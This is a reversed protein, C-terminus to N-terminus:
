LIKQKFKESYKLRQWEKEIEELDKKNNIAWCNPCFGYLWKIIIRDLKILCWNGHTFQIRVWLNNEFRVVDEIWCSHVNYYDKYDVEGAQRGNICYKAYLYGIRGLTRLVGWLEKLLSTIQM